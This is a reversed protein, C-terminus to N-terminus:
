DIATFFILRRGDHNITSGEDKACSVLMDVDSEGIGEPIAGVVEAAAMM